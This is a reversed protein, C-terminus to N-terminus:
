ELEFAVYLIERRRQVELVIADGTEYFKLKEQLDALDSISQSNIAYILDGPILGIDWYPADIARAAVIVGFNKRVGPLVQLLEDTVNIVLVGLEPVLNQDPEDLELISDEEDLNKQVPVWYKKREGKRM